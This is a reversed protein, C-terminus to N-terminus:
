LKSPIFHKDRISSLLCSIPVLAPGASTGPLPVSDFQFSLLPNQMLSAVHCAWFHPFRVLKISTCANRFSRVALIEQCRLSESTEVVNTILHHLLAINLSRVQRIKAFVVVDALAKFIATSLFVITAWGMQLPNRGSTAYKVDVGVCFRRAQV